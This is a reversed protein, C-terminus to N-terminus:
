NLRVISLSSTFLNLAIQKTDRSVIIDERIYADIIIIPGLISVEYHMPKILIFVGIM